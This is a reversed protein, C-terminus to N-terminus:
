MFSSETKGKTGFRSSLTGMVHDNLARKLGNPDARRADLDKDRDFPRWPAAEPDWGLPAKDAAAAAKAARAAGKAAPAAPGRGIAQLHMAVLSV